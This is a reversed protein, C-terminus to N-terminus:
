PVSSIMETRPLHGLARDVFRELAAWDTYEHDRTTDTSGGEKATIQKMIWRTLFGYKTYAVTGAVDATEVPRLGTARLFKEAVDHAGARSKEDKAAASMSVSFFALKKRALEARRDRVLERLGSSYRGLHIPGGLFVLDFPALDLAEADFCRRETVRHGRKRALEAIRQAIRTTSGHYTSHVVLLNAM